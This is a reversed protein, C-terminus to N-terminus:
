VGACGADSSAVGARWDRAARLAARARGAARAVDERWGRGGGGGDGGRQDCGRGRGQARLEQVACDDGGGGGAVASARLDGGAVARHDPEAPPVTWDCASLSVYDESGRLTYRGM